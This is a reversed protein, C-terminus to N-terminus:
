RGGKAWCRGVTFGVVIWEGEVGAHAEGTGGVGEGGGPAEVEVVRHSLCLSLNLYTHVRIHCASM